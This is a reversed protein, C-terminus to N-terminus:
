ANKSNKNRPNRDSRIFINNNHRCLVHRDNMINKLSLLYLKKKLGCEGGIPIGRQKRQSSSAIPVDQNYTIGELLPISLLSLTFVQLM